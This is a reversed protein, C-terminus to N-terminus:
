FFTAICTTVGIRRSSFRKAAHWPATLLSERCLCNRDFRFRIGNPEIAILRRDRQEGAQPRASQQM